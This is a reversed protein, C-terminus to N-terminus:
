RPAAWQADVCCSLHLKGDRQHPAWPLETRISHHKGHCLDWTTAVSEAGLCM